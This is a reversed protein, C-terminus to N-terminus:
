PIMKSGLSVIDMNSPSHHPDHSSRRTPCVLDLSHVPNGKPLWLHNQIIQSQRKPPIVQM